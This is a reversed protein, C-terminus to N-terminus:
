GVRELLFLYKITSNTQSFYILLSVEFGTSEEHDNIIECTDDSDSNIEITKDYLQRGNNM